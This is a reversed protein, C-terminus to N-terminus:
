FVSHWLVSFLVSREVKTANSTSSHLSDWLSGEEVSRRWSGGLVWTETRTSTGPTRWGGGRSHGSTPPRPIWAGRRCCVSCGATPTRTLSHALSHTPTHCYLANPRQVCHLLKTANPCFQMCSSVDPNMCYTASLLISEVKTCRRVYGYTQLQVRLKQRVCYRQMSTIHVTKVCRVIM